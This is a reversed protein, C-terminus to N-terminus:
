TQQIQKKTTIVKYWLYLKVEYNISQGEQEGIRDRYYGKLVHSYVPIDVAIRDPQLGHTYEQSVFGAKTFDGFGSNTDKRYLHFSFFNREKGLAYLRLDGLYQSPNYAFIDASPNGSAFSSKMRGSVWVGTIKAADLPIRIELLQKESKKSVEFTEVQVREM